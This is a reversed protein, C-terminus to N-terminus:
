KFTLTCPIPSLKNVRKILLNVVVVMWQATHVSTNVSELALAAKRPPYQSQTQLRNCLQRGPEKREASCEGTERSLLQWTRFSAQERVRVTCSKIIVKKSRIMVDLFFMQSLHLSLRSVLRFIRVTSHESCCHVPAIRGRSAYTNNDM